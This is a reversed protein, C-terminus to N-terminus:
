IRIPIVLADRLVSDKMEAAEKWSVVRTNQGFRGHTALTIFQAAQFLVHDHTTQDRSTGAKGVVVAADVLTGGCGTSDTHRLHSGIFSLLVQRIQEVCGATKVFLLRGSCHDFPGKQPGKKNGM